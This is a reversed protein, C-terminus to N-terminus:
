DTHVIQLDPSINFQSLLSGATAVRWLADKQDPEKGEMNIQETRNVQPKDAGPLFKLGVTLVPASPQVEELATGSVYTM